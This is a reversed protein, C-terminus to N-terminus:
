FKESKTKLKTRDMKKTQDSLKMDQRSVPSIFFGLCIRFILKELKFVFSKKWLDVLFDTLLWYFFITLLQKNDFIIQPSFNTYFIWSKQKIKVMNKKAKKVLKKCCNKKRFKLIHHSFIPTFLSSFEHISIKTTFMHSKQNFISIKTLITLKTFFQFKPSFTFFFLFYTQFKEHDM